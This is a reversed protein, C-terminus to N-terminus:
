PLARGVGCVCVVRFGVYNIYYVRGKRDNIARSASRCRKPNNDWSGGRLVTNGQKNKNIWAIYGNPAVKYDNHWDDLCLEWVNGHIDYLGFANAKNFQGVLTTKKRYEGENEDAFAYGANYNALESTITEGFHFPTTTGTRCAYEWEAESPLSYQRDTHQSLRKCFEEADYWSVQEVPLNNGKFYSPDPNLKRDVKPLAAVAKWQEQTVQYKGMFFAPVTVEHQPKETDLGEGEPSGMMFKGGPIYVMDLTINNRLYETFYRAQKRELKIIEGRRNVTVTDFSFKLLHFVKQFLSLQM